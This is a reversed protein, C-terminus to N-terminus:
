LVLHTVIDENESLNIHLTQLGASQAAKINIESDDIFLTEEPIMNSHKLVYRFIELDPKRYGIEFSYYAQEFLSNFNFGYGTKFDSSYKDFHIKNTNSLLFVRYNKRTKGILEIRDKPFDLLMANWVSDIMEDSVPNSIYKRIEARFQVPSILGKELLDFLNTQNTLTYSKEFGGAPSAPDAFGLKKMETATKQTDLNIIVGGLDFIINKIKNTQM